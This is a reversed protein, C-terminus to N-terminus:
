QYNIKSMQRAWALFERFHDKYQEAYKKLDQKFLFHTYNKILKDFEDSAFYIAYLNGEPLFLKNKCQAFSNKSQFVKIFAESTFPAYKRAWIRKWVIKKM